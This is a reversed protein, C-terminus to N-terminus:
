CPQSKKGLYAKPKGCQPLIFKEKIEKLLDTEPRVTALKQHNKVRIRM